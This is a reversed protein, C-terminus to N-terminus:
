SARATVRGNALEINDIAQRSIARWDTQEDWPAFIAEGNVYFRCFLVEDSDAAQVEITVPQKLWQHSATALASLLGKSFNSDYGAELIYRRDGRVHLHTKWTEKGRREVQKFELKELYCTLATKTIPVIARDDDLWYWLCNNSRNCYIYQPRPSAGFGLPQEPKSLSLAISELSAAISALIQDQMIAYYRHNQVATIHKCLKRSPCSCVPFQSAVSVEYQTGKTRNLVQYLNPELETIILRDPANM